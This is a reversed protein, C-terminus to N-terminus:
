SSASRAWWRIGPRTTRVPPWASSPVSSRAPMSRCRRRARWSVRLLTPAAVSPALWLDPKVAEYVWRYAEVPLPSGTANIARLKDLRVQDRPRLGDKMCSTLYAAGCGFLTVGQADIFRWLADADPWGPNGDYLVISAGTLLAGVQLNWVIWGTSGLFLLRDGARLDHQLAMTKLHTLVIGGQSHVMAKPLGTTGSSYVIWLPHDFSGSRRCM